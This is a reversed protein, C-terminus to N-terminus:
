CKIKIKKWSANDIKVMKMRLSHKMGTKVSAKESLDSHCYTEVPKWIEELYEQQNSCHQLRSPRM